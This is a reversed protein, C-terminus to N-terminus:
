QIERFLFWAVPACSLVCLSASAIAELEHREDHVVSTIKGFCSRRAQMNSGIIDCRFRRFNQAWIRDHSGWCDQWAEDILLRAWRNHLHLGQKRFSMLLSDM